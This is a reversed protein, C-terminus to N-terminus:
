GRTYIVLTNNSRVEAAVVSGIDFNPNEAMIAAMIDANASLAAQINAARRSNQSLRTSVSTTAAASALTNVDVLTISGINNLARIKRIEARSDATAAIAANAGVTTGSDTSVNSGANGSVNAGATVSGGINSGSVNAGVGAAVSGGVSAGIEGANAPVALGLGAMIATACLLKKM